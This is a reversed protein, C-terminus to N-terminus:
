KKKDSEVSLDQFINNINIGLGAINPQLILYRSTKSLFSKIKTLLTNKTEFDENTYLNTIQTIIETKQKEFIPELPPSNSLYKISKNIM